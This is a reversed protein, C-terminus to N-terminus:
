NPDITTWDYPDVVHPNDDLFAETDAKVLRPMVFYEFAVWALLVIGFMILTGGVFFKMALLLIPNM